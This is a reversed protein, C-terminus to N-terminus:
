SPILVVDRRMREVVRYGFLKGLLMPVFGIEHRIGKDEIAIVPRCRRITESAGQLVFYEYGEVDLYILDCIPLALDDVKMVHIKQPDDEIIEAIRHAGANRYNRALGIRRRDEGLAANFKIINENPANACLCRFNRADPEFTYVTQFKTAMAAPWIGCHGGAQVAVRFEKCYRYAVDLDGVMSIAVMSEQDNAPWLFNGEYRYGVPAGDFTNSIGM